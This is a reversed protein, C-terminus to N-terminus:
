GFAWWNKASPEGTTDSMQVLLGHLPEAEHFVM